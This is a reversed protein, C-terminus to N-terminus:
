FNLKRTLRDIWDPEMTEMPLSAGLMDVIQEGLEQPFYISVGPSFRKNPLLTVAYVGGDQLVGFARFDHIAFHKGNVSVVSSDLQYQMNTAPRKAWVAIAVAMVVILIAFTYNELLFVALAVLALAIVGLVIFWKLSKEHEVYESAQWELGGQSGQPRGMPESTLPPSVPQLEPQPQAPLPQEIPQPMVPPQEPASPVSQQQAVVVPPVQPVPPLENAPQLPLPQPQQGPQENM